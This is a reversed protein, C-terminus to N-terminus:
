SSDRVEVKITNRDFIINIIYDNKILKTNDHTNIKILVVV